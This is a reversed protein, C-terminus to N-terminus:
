EHFKLGIDQILEETQTKLESFKPHDAQFMCNFDNFLGFTYDVFHMPCKILPNELTQLTHRNAHTPDDFSLIRWYSMLPDWQELIRRVCAQLSLWRTQSARLIKHPKVEHFTQFEKFAASNKPNRGFHNYVNRCLDELSNSLKTCANGGGSTDYPMHM